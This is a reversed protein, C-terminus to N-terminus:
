SSAGLASIDGTVVFDVPVGRFQSPLRKRVEANRVYVRLSSEGLGVGEVGEVRGFEEKAAAKISRKDIERREMVVEKSEFSDLV